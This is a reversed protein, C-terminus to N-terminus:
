ARHFVEGGLVSHRDGPEAIIGIRECAIPGLRLQGDRMEISDNIRRGSQLNM